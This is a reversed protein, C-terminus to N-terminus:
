AMGGGPVLVAMCFTNDKLILVFTEILSKKKIKRYPRYHMVNSACYWLILTEIKQKKVKAFYNKMTPVQIIFFYRRADNELIAM